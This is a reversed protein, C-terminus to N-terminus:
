FNYGLFFNNLMFIEFGNYSKELYSKRVLFSIKELYFKLVLFLFM